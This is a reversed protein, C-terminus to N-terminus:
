VTENSQSNSYNNNKELHNLDNIEKYQEFLGWFSRSLKGAEIEKDILPKFFNWIYNDEGYSGRQHWLILWAKEQWGHKKTIDMLRAINLSDVKKMLELQVERQEKNPTSHLYQKYKQQALTDNEKVAKFYKALAKEADGEAQGNLYVNIKRVFQDRALLHEIALYVDINEISAFHQQRLENYDALINHFFDVQHFAKFAEFETLYNLQAGGQSIGKKIWISAMNTDKLSLAAAAVKFYPQGSRPMIYEFAAKYNAIAQQYEGKDHLKTARSMFTEYQDYHTQGVCVFPLLCLLWLQKLPATSLPKFISHFLFM